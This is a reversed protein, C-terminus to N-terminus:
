MMSAFVALDSNRDDDSNWHDCNLQGEHWNLKLRNGDANRFIGSVM